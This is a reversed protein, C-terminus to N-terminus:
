RLSTERPRVLAVAAAQCTTMHSNHMDGSEGYIAPPGAGFASRRLLLTNKKDNEYLSQWHVRLTALNSDQRPVGEVQHM